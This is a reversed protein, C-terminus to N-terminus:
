KCYYKHKCPSVVCGGLQVEGKEGKKMLEDDPYGYIIQSVNKSSKCKPCVNSDVIDKCSCPLIFNFEKDDHHKLSIYQKTQGLGEASVYITDSLYKRLRVKFRSENYRLTFSTDNNVFRITPNPVQNGTSDHVTGRIQAIQQAIGAFAFCLCFLLCVSRKM